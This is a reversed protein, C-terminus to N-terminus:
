PFVLNFNGDIYQTSGFDLIAIAKNSKSSNYILAARANITLPIVSLDDFDVLTAQGTELGGQAAVSIKPYGSAVTLTFGGATYGSGTAENTTTYVTIGSLTLDANEAYLALKFTDSAFDHTGQALELKFSYVLGHEITM